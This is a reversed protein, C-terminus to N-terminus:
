ALLELQKLAAFLPQCQESPSEVLPLRLTATPFLRMAKLAAKLPIPNTERFLETILPQLQQQLTQAAELNGQQWHRYLAVMQQPAANAVVSIVGHGGMALLPLFLPDDGALVVFEKNLKAQSCRQLIEMAQALSGSAEKIGVINDLHALREVTVPLLNCATRGPVNYLIIPLKTAAAVAKFHQYLGEQPPKNYYPTVVLAADAGAAAASQLKQITTKTDNTGVGAIVPLDGLQQKASRLLEQMQSDTVTAGEGTSGCVVVADVAATKLYHCLQIWAQQDCSFDAKFPTPMAPIVGRLQQATIMKM